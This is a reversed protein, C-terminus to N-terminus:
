MLAVATGGCILPIATEEAEHRMTQQLIVATLSASLM